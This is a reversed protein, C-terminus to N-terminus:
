RLQTVNAHRLNKVNTVLSNWTSDGYIETM